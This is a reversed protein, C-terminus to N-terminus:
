LGQNVKRLSRKYSPSSRIFKEVWKHLLSVRKPLDNRYVDIFLVVRIEKTDNKASHLFTDDFLVGEGERWVYKKDDVTIAAGGSKPIKLGLHYRYVSRFPGFHPPIDKGPELISFFAHSIKHEVQKLLAITKPCENMAKKMYKGYIKLGYMRWPIGGDSAVLRKELPDIEDFQPIVNMNSLLADLEERICQWNDELIESEKFYEECSVFPTNYKGGRGDVIPMNVPTTNIKDNESQYLAHKPAKGFLHGIAFSPLALFIRSEFYWLAFIAM